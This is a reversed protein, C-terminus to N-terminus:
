NGKNEYIFHWNIGRAKGSGKGNGKGIERLWLLGFSFRSPNKGWCEVQFVHGM